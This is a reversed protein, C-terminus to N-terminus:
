SDAGIFGLKKNVGQIARISYKIVVASFIITIFSDIKLADILQLYLPDLDTFYDYVTDFIQQLLFTGGTYSIVGLGIALFVRGILPAAIIALFAAIPALFAPM